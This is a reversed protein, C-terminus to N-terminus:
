FVVGGDKSDWLHILLHLFVVGGDKSDLLNISLHLSWNIDGVLKKKGEEDHVLSGISYNGLANADLNKKVYHYLIRIYDKLM